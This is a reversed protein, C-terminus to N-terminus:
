GQKPLPLTSLLACANSTLVEACEEENLGAGQVIRHALSPSLLDSPEHADSNLLLRAGTLRAVRSVHGNTLSHGKRGSLELYVGNKAALQAEEITILGPHALIDVCSSQLAALNTGEEVPEVITEGHVIVLWAGLEKARRAAEDIAAPPVHTLEVGPAVIIDWHKRALACDEAVESIVRELSGVGAHDTIGLAKYGRTSARRILEIPTLSGDSLTTHTHFDYVM